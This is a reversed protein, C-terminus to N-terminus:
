SLGLWRGFAGDGSVMVDPTLAEVYSKPLHSPTPCLETWLVMWRSQPVKTFALVESFSFEGDWFMGEQPEDTQLQAWIERLNWLYADSGSDRKDAEVERWGGLRIWTEM